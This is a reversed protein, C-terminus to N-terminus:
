GHVADDADREGLLGRALELKAHALPELARAVLRRGSAHLPQVELGRQGPQLFGPDARDVPEAGLDQVLARHFGPDVRVELDEGLGPRAAREPFSEPVPELFLEGGRGCAYAAGQPAARRPGVFVVPGDSSQFDGTPREGFPAIEVGVPPAIWEVALA